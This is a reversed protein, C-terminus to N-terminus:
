HCAPYSVVITIIYSRDLVSTTWRSVVAQKIKHGCLFTSSYATTFQVCVTFQVDFWLNFWNADGAWLNLTFKYRCKAKAGMNHMTYSKTTQAISIM